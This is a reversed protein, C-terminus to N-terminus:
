SASPFAEMALCFGNKSMSMVFIISTELSSPSYLIGPTSMSESRSAWRRLMSASVAAFRTAKSPM